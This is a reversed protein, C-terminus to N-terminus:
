SYSDFLGTESYIMGIYGTLIVTNKFIERLNRWVLLVGFLHTATRIFASLSGHNFQLQEWM